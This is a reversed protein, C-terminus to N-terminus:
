ESRLSKVPNTLAARIVRPCITAFAVLLALGPALLFLGADLTARYAFDQLWQQAFFWAAPLAMGGALLILWLYEKSVLGVISRVSAGLVKRVGIEKTRSEISYSVLAFLGLCAILVIVLSFTLFIQGRKTDAQYFQEFRTDLFTYELPNDADIATNIAKLKSVTEDWNSTKIRLTYYDIRQITTNPAGFIVPMMETRLSEFHFNEVVGIVEVKFPTELNNISGGYRVSPIEIMQGVPDTLGLQEVALQTLVIKMSDAKPDDITRGALLKINYTKLFDRDIGVFIMEHGKSDGANNVTTVPFSKWEGPV